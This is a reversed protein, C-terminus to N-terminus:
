GWTNQPSRPTDGFIVPPPLRADELRDLFDAYWALANGLGRLILWLGLVGVLMYTAVMSFAM